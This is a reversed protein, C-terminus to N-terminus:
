RAAADGDGYVGEAVVADVGPAFVGDDVDRV